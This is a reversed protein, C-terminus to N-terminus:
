RGGMQPSSMQQNYCDTQGEIWGRKYDPDSLFRGEDKYYVSGFGPKGAVGWGTWCGDTYGAQFSPSGPPAWGTVKRDCAALAAILLLGLPMIKRMAVPM